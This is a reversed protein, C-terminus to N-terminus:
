PRQLRRYLTQNRFGLLTALTWIGIGTGIPIRILCFFAAVVAVARGWPAREILGWGAALARATRVIVITWGLRFMARIWLDAWPGQTWPGFDGRLYHSAFNLGFVGTALSFAAYILWVISLTRVRSSYNAAEFDIAPVPALPVPRGCRPCAPQDPALGLGCGSCYM